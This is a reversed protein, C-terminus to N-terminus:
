TIYILWILLASPLTTSIVWDSSCFYFSFNKFFLKLATEFLILCALIWVIPNGYLSSFPPIFYIQDFLPQFSGKGLTPFLYWACLTGFLIFGFLSVCLCIMILIAFTLFWSLIKFYALSFYLTVYLLFGVLNLASKNKLIFSPPLLSHWPM